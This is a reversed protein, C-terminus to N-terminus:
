LQKEYMDVYSIMLEWLSNPDYKADLSLNHKKTVKDRWFHVTYPGNFMSKITPAKVHHKDPYKKLPM